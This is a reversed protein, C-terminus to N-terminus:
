QHKGAKLRLGFIRIFGKADTQDYGGDEDMSAVAEDYLSNDSARSLVTANGKYLLMDVTGNVSKQSHNVSQMLFEMEPSFWLGNYILRGIEIAMWEKYYQVQKDLTISELDLHANYLIAGGPTVYVGRSKMGMLRNEVMDVIGIGHKEGLKNLYAFLGLPTDYAEKTVTNEVKVPVGGSFTISIYDPEDAAYLFHTGKKFMSPDYKHSPNELIGAEYSTHLLNEDISFPKELSVPIPIDCQKAYAIMDPDKWPSIIKAEPMLTMYGLEFRAQDNGKGTAGHCLATAGEAKAIEVHKKAIIPRAIATGLFYQSEYKANACIAPFVYDTIFEEKLDAIHVKSAGCALAKEKILGFDDDQGVDAVYAVVDYGKDLLWRLIVSTDLGGSYALIVKNTDM